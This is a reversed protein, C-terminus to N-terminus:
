HFPSFSFQSSVVSRLWPRPGGEGERGWEKERNVVADKKGFVNTKKEWVLLKNQGLDTVQKTRNGGM